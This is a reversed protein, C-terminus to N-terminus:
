YQDSRAHNKLMFKGIIEKLGYGPHIGERMLLSRLPSYNRLLELGISRMIHVPLMNSLLSCNLAHVFGSRTFIDSKRCRNYRDVILKADFDSIKNPLIDMLTQVDRVGLNFGQAGIPPFVHAAEGVLVTRNAAFSNPLLSKLAWTQIPSEITIKGLILQMQDELIEAIKQSEMNLLKEARLPNVVWVLSSKNGPLPVQTLPGDETHFENSINQHPLKHSFNLVLAIQAYNRQKVSIGAATRASSRSGDAAVILSTEITKGDTLTICIHNKQYDFYKASSFFRTINPTNAVSNILANNLNVNPVNYGFAEEGIESSSFSVTPARVFRSTIDIIRIFSLAASHSKVINWIHIKELMRITPNMLATTRLEDIRPFPGILSVSYGKHALNLATLLGIPGSGVVAINNYESKISSM